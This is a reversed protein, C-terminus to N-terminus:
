RACGVVHDATPSRYEPWSPSEETTTTVLDTGPSRWLRWVEYFDEDHGLGDPHARPFLGVVTMVDQSIAADLSWLDMPDWGGNDAANWWALLFDAIKRSQGTDAKAIEFLRVLARCEADTPDPSTVDVTADTECSRVGDVLDRLCPSCFQRQGAWWGTRMLMNNVSAGKGASAVRVAGCESCPPVHDSPALFTFRETGCTNAVVILTKGCMDCSVSGVLGNPLRQMSM